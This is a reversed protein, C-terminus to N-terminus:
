SSTRYLLGGSPRQFKQWSLLLMHTNPLFQPGSVSQASLDKIGGDSHSSFM